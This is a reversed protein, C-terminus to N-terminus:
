YFFVKYITIIIIDIWIVTGKWRNHLPPYIWSVSSFIYAKFASPKQPLPICLLFSTTKNPSTKYCIITKVSHTQFIIPLADLSPNLARFYYCMQADGHAEHVDGWNQERYRWPLGPLGLLPAVVQPKVVHPGSNLQTPSVKLRVEVSGM